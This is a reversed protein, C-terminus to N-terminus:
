AQKYICIIDKDLHLSCEGDEVDCDDDDDGDVHDLPDFTVRARTNDCYGVHPYVVGAPLADGHVRTTLETLTDRRSDRDYIVYVSKGTIFIKQESFVASVKEAIPTM